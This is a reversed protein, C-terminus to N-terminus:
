PLVARADHSVEFWGRCGADFNLKHQYQEGRIPGDPLAVIRECHPCRVCWGGGDNFVRTVTLIEDNM